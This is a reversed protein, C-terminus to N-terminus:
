FLTLENPSRLLWDLVFITGGGAFWVLADTGTAVLLEDLVASDLLLNLNSFLVLGVFVDGALLSSLVKVDEVALFIFLEVSEPETSLVIM